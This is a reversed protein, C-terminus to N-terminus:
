VSKRHIAAHTLQQLQKRAKFRTLPNVKDIILIGELHDIEHQFIRAGLGKAKITVKKGNLTLAEVEVEDARKIQLFIGPLSLCGEEDVLQKRGKKIIKPNVFAYNADLDKVIILQKSIGIQPAALGVGDSKDMTYSMQLTLREIDPSIKEIIVAKKKLFRDPYTVLNLPKM